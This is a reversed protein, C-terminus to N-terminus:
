NSILLGYVPRIALSSGNKIVKELLAFIILVILENGNNTGRSIVLHVQELNLKM